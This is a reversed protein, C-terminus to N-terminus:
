RWEDTFGEVGGGNYGLSRLHDWSVRAAGM